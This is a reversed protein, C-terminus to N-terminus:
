TPNAMNLLDQLSYLPCHYIEGSPYDFYLHDDIVDCLYPLYALPEFNEDVLIGYRFIETGRQAVYELIIGKTTQNVYALSDNRELTLLEENTLLDYVVPAMNQQCHIRFRDSFFDEERNLDPPPGQREALQHLDESSYTVIRGDRYTLEVWSSDQSRRYQFDFLNNAAPIEMNALVHGDTNLLTMYNYSALLVTGAELNLRAETHSLNSDYSAILADRHEQLSLLRISRSGTSAALATKARLSLYECSETIEIKGMLWGGRDFFSISGDRSSVMSYDGSHVFSMIDTSTTYALERQEGSELDFSTMTNGGVLYVGTEDVQVRIRNSSVAVSRDNVDEMNVVVFLSSESGLGSRFGTFVLHSGCFGGTFFERESDISIVEDGSETEYVGVVGDEFAAALLTGDANLALFNRQPDVKIDDLPVAQKHEGFSLKRVVSGDSTQYVVAETHNKYIAAVRTGDASLAMKTGPARTWITQKSPLDYCSVGEVGAYVIRNEDLFYAESLVSPEVALLATQTGDKTDYIALIGDYIAFARRGDPSLGSKVPESPLDITYATKFGASLDYVNLATTLMYQAESNKETDLMLAELVKSVAEARDGRELLTKAESILELAQNARQEKIKASRETSAMWEAKKRALEEEVGQIKLGLFLSALGGILVSLLVFAITWSRRKLKKTRPDNQYLHEFDWLMEKASQYRDDPNPQMAKSIIAIVAASTCEETLPIVDVANKAPRTGSLLHYLTAGLSYIDSRADLLRDGSRVSSGTSELAMKETETGSEEMVDTEYDGSLPTMQDTETSPFSGPSYSGYHEPSAYGKSGGVRIAGKEGLVLAINFDILRIDGEPTLMVNAPKIDGHLIGHPPRTHLYDLAYLIQIAWEVVNAQPFREGRKLPKDLSEGEIYDIVTYVTGNEIIYDYVQPIYSHSLNKLADVERRLVEPKTTLTRKDAKLVVLKNLRLHRALYVVGGGGSGLRQIIEYTSAIIEAM